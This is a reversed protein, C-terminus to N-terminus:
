ETGDLEEALLDMLLSDHWTGDNGREAKRLIGVPRFGAKTYSRIAAANDAAPDITIRHHGHDRVVHRALTRVAETGLGRGHLDPDLYIDIGAHRYDPEEEAQWQIWGVTRGDHVIVYHHGGDEALDELVAKEMDDGGRWWRFVEPRRRIAALAPVDGEDAPRLVVREGRLIEDM